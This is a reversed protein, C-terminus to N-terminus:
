NGHALLIFFAGVTSRTPSTKNLKESSSDYIVLNM